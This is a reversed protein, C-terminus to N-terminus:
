RTGHARINRARVLEHVFKGETLLERLPEFGIRFAMPSLGEITIPIDSDAEVLMVSGIGTEFAYAQLQQIKQIPNGTRAGTVEVMLPNLLSGRDDSLWVAFDPRFIRNGGIEPEHIVSDIEVANEFISILQRELASAFQLKTEISFTSKKVNAASRQQSSITQSVAKELGTLFASIHLELALRDKLSARVRPFIALISDADETLAHSKGQAILLTPRKTSFAIGLEFMVNRPQSEGVVAIIADASQVLRLVSELQDVDGPENNHFNLVNWGSQVVIEALLSLPTGWPAIIFCNRQIM